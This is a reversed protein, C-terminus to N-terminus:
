PSNSPTSECFFLGVWGGRLLLLLLRVSSSGRTFRHNLGARKTLFDSRQILQGAIFEDPFKRVGNREETGPLIELPIAKHDGLFMNRLQKFEGGGLATGDHCFYRPHGLGDM